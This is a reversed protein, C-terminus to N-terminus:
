NENNSDSTTNNQDGSLAPRDETVPMSTDNNQDSDNSHLQKMMPEAINVYDQGLTIIVKTPPTWGVANSKVPETKTVANSLGLSQCIDTMTNPNPVGTDLLETQSNEVSATKTKVSKHKLSSLSVSVDTYGISKLEDAAFAALGNTDTGNKVVVTALKRSATEDGKVLWDVYAKMKETDVRRFWEGKPGRFDDSPLSATKIDDRQVHHYIAILDFLQTRSLDTRIYKMGEDIISNANAITSFNKAKDAMAKLLIHQRAMRRDDGDEPSPKEGADPHRYRAFGVAQDGTLHQYGPMLDINLHGWKDHYHMEHEVNLDVGGLADVMHKTADINLIIHYDCKIGTLEEVTDLSRQPGGTAYAANIKTNWNTGAIHTYTDRPISLMTAKGKVLDLTLIFLTDTRAGKTYVMDSDTWNDDIGMGLITIRDKGPFGERPNGVIQGIDQVVDKLSSAGKGSHEGPRATLMHSVFAFSIGIGAIILILASFLLIRLIKKRRDMINM